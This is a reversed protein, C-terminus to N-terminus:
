SLLQMPAVVPLAAGHLASWSLVESLGDSGAPPAGAPRPQVADYRDPGLFTSRFASYREQSRCIAQDADTIFLAM